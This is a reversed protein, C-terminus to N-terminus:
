KHSLIRSLTSFLSPDILLTANYGHGPDWSVPNFILPNDIAAWIETPIASGLGKRNMTKLFVNGGTSKMGLAKAM